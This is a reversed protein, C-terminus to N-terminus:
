NKEQQIQKPKGHGETYGAGQLNLLMIQHERYECAMFFALEEGYKNISFSKEQPKSDVTRWTARYAFAQGDIFRLQVGTVGTKNRKSLGTNRSNGIRTIKRLNSVENNARDQDKHDIHILPNDFDFDENHLKFVIRHSKYIKGQYKVVWYGKSSMSGAPKGRLDGKCHSSIKWRLKEPIGTDYEFLQDVNIM